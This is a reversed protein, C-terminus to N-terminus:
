SFTTKANKKLIFRGGATQVRHGAEPPCRINNQNSRRFRHGTATYSLATLCKQSPVCRLITTRAPPHKRPCPHTYNISAPNPTGAAKKYMKKEGFATLRMFVNAITFVLTCFSPRRCSFARFDATIGM